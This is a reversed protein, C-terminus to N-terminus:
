PLSPPRHGLTQYINVVPEAGLLSRRLDPRTLKAAIVEITQTAQLFHAEAEQERGLRALVKGLAAKGLWVEQLTQLSEALRVSAELASAADDLRGSAALVEGQLRLARAVHKRSDTQTAMELSQTAFTWAEDLRGEALALEGRARLLPIHWRWRFWIDEELLAWARRFCEEAPGHEGRQLHALGVKLLSHGRPEPWPWMQRAVEDGEANLRIADDLDFLELHVGGIINPVRAIWFKDGAASAYEELRRYWHLAEEYAGKSTHAHGLQFAALGFLFGAHAGQALDAGEYLYTLSRDFDGRWQLFSGLSCLTQALLQANGVEKSLRVAEEADPTTEAIPGYVSFRIYVRNALCVAQFGRDDLDRAIALAHENSETAQEPRHYYNYVNSLGALLEMERRRDGVRRILELAWQYEAAAAEYEALVMLVAGHEAHLNALTKPEPAPVLTGAADLARAYHRKAEANAFAHAAREGALVSYTMAKQWAEGQAFHYALEEYHEALRDPYLEEIASGVAKHLDRRRQMLLSQYAVDQIVAHKFVYAPEPLLGQEYILELAKLERLLGDLEGTLGSIRELLRVLFQRGIVSALQVTRKGNEGLRDLRAMIIAQITDPVNVEALGKVMRYGGNERRLVGLDLLTKTVEEIFLPVGEAKVMLAAKLEEPFQESGLVRGAMALSDAESLSRLTLTTHFSRSGFPPTYGVRYTVILMLPVAAVSDMLVGLYEETSTDIWHLDEMVLVLPRLRAGRLALALAADFLKKRRASADMAAVTPDGPDVALLYRIFPIHAELEGMRRMGHEVKAIIEPEGDFEEIRFNERLQDMLPLFPISQGFAICRGELWSVAEGAEALARRCELVLRSKGIGAEGAIFVVQGQGDKAERFRDLLTGLERERGILPTLGREIAVDLRARRGRPRLVEFARTPARGKVAVEELDLTEFFGSVLRHTAESIVVSGPRALQQLRAALNTTDGVATYDMRLDDGIKGVVVLGTNIGIRMQLTLDRQAQLEQGYERMARQIGLAAHVARRPGDEHAIPAGFLAMVGDGTYQNITGEFRHVEATIREFCHDVIQHVEEPDLKEAMTTFGALDAFLVTVQRREGELASRATLIKEALHRPTYSQIKAEQRRSVQVKAMPTQESAPEPTELAAGCQGCFKFAPQTEAGCQPCPRELKAGCEVCFKMTPPNDLQCRQCQM